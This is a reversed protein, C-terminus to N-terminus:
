KKFGKSVKRPGTFKINWSISIRVDDTLNENVGHRIWGPFLMLQGVKPVIMERGSLQVWAESCTVQDVPTEFFFDGDKGTTQYYYVGSIDSSMHTHVDGYSGKDFKNVWSQLMYDFKQNPDPMGQPFGIVNAYNQVANDLVQMFHSCKNDSIWNGLFGTENVFHGIHQVPYSGSESDKKFSSKPLAKEIEDQVLYFGDIHSINYVPVAFLGNVSINDNQKM